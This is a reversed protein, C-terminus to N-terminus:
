RYTGNLFLARERRRRPILMSPKNWMLMADAAGAFDGANLRKVVTSGKFGGTGINFCLSLLADFQHPKLPKKVADKVAPEYRSALDDRLVQEVVARPKPKAKTGWRARDAATVPGSHLLHGVGFTAHNTPDNYAYPVFGEEAILFALGKASASSASQLRAIQRDLRQREGKALKYAALTERIRGDGKPHKEAAKRWALRAAHQRRKAETLAKNLQALTAAIGGLIARERRFHISNLAPDPAGVVDPSVEKAAM